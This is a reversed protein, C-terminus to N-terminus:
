GVRDRGRAAFGAGAGVEGGRASARAAAQAVCWRALAAIGQALGPTPALLGLRGCISREAGAQTTPRYLASRDRLRRGAFREIAGWVAVPDGEGQGLAQLQAVAAHYTADLRQSPNERRTGLATCPIVHIAPM